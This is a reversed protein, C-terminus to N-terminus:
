RRGARRADAGAQLLQEMVDQRGAVAALDLASEGQRNLLEIDVDLRLFEQLVEVRGAICALHLATQGSAGLRRVDAGALLLLRVTSRRGSFAAAGLATFGDDGVLDPDGGRRLLERVREDQGARAAVALEADIARARAPGFSNASRLRREWELADPPATRLTASPRPKALAALATDADQAPAPGSLAGLLCPLARCARGLDARM